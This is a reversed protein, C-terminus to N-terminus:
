KIPSNTEKKFYYYLIKNLFNPAIKKLFVSLKGNFSLTLYNKKNILAKIIKKALINPHMMKQENRPSKNQTNGDKDLAYKRINSSVFGPAVTLVHLNNSFNEVRICDLFGNMAFKSAAYGTRGPLGIYGSISSVGVLSGNSNILHNLAYKTCYVMGYFNVDMVKKIIDLSLDKFNARMSVGANNILIDIKNYKSMTMEILNECDSEKTVDCKVSLCNKLKLNDEIQHLKEINRAALVVNCGKNFFEEVCAKGIGSSAGTIIVVKNKM